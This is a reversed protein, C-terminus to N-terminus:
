ENILNARISKFINDYTEQTGGAPLNIEIRVTMAVGMKSGSTNANPKVDTKEPKDKPLHSAKKTASTAKASTGNKQKQQKAKSDSDAHGSLEAFVKFVAAQRQGIADSTKDSKRFYTVLEPKSLHWMDDGRLSHLDSYATQVLKKFETAFEADDHLSFVSEGKSTRKGDQDIIGVFQLANIVYSENNSALGYKKVTDSNVTPPFNKRLYTVIQTVNGAGSIYPHATPM